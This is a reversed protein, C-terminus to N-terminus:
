QHGSFCEPFVAVVPRWDNWGPRWVLENGSARASALWAILEDATLAPSPEGGPVAISWTVDGAEAIAKPPTAPTPPTPSPSAPLVPAPSDGPPPLAAAPEPSVTATFPSEFERMLTPQNADPGVPADAASVRFKTGCQPCYVSRGAYRDKLKTRHGNPCFTVIGMSVIEVVAQDPEAPWSRGLTRGTIM